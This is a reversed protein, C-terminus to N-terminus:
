QFLAPHPSFPSVAPRGTVQFFFCVLPVLLDADVIWLCCEPFSPSRWLVVPPRSTHSPPAPTPRTSLIDQFHKKKKLCFVAYSIFSHSQLESTHEESRGYTVVVM